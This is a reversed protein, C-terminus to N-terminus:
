NNNEDFIKILIDINNADIAKSIFDEDYYHIFKIDASIQGHNNILAEIALRAQASYNSSQIFIGHIGNNDCCTIFDSSLNEEDGIIFVIGNSLKKEGANLHCKEFSLKNRVRGLGNVYKGQVSSVDSYIILTTM